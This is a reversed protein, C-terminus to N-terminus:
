GHHVDHTRCAPDTLRSKYGRATGFAQTYRCIFSKAELNQFERFLPHEPNLRERAAALHNMLLYTSYLSFTSIYHLVVDHKM